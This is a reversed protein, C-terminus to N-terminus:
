YKPTLSDESIMKCIIHETVHLLSIFYNCFSDRRERTSVPNSTEESTHHASSPQNPATHPAAMQEKWRERERERERGDKETIEGEM